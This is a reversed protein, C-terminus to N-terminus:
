GRNGNSDWTTSQLSMSNKIFIQVPMDGQNYRDKIQMIQNLGLKCIIQRSGGEELLVILSRSRRALFQYRKLFHNRPGIFLFFSLYNENIARSFLNTRM